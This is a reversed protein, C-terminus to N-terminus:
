EIFDAAADHGPYGPVRSRHQTFEAMLARIPEEKVTDLVRVMVEDARPVPPESVQEPAKLGLIASLLPNVREPGVVMALGILVAMGVAAKGIIRRQLM